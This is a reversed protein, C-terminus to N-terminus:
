WHEELWKQVATYHPLRATFGALTMGHRHGKTLIRVLKDKDTIFQQNFKERFEPTVDEELPPNHKQLRVEAMNHCEMAFNLRRSLSLCIQKSNGKTFAKIPIVVFQNYAFVMLWQEMQEGYMSHWADGRFRKMNKEAERQFGKGYGRYYWWSQMRALPERIMIVFTMKPSLLGGYFRQLLDPLHMDSTSNFRGQLLPHRVLALYEPTFDASLATINRQCSPLGSMWRGKVDLLSGNHRVETMVEPDFFHYEKTNGACQAGAGVMEFAFSTTACKPAGLVYLRPLLKENRCFEQNMNHGAAQLKPKWGSTGRVKCHSTLQQVAQTSMGVAYVLKALGSAAAIFSGKRM